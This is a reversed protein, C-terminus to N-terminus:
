ATAAGRSPPDCVVQKGGVSGQFGVEDDADTKGSRDEGTLQGILSVATEDDIRTLMDGAVAMGCAIRAGAHHLVDVTRM